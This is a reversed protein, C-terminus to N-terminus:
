FGLEALRKKLVDGTLENGIGDYFRTRKLIDPNSMVQNLEFMTTSDLESNTLGQLNFHINVNLFKNKLNSLVKPIDQRITSFRLSLLSGGDPDTILKDPWYQFHYVYRNSFSLAFDELHEGVGFAIDFESNDPPILPRPKKNSNGDGDPGGCNHVLWQGDGVFYTHAEDVTLNYVWATGDTIVM